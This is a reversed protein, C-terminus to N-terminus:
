DTRLPGLHSIAQVVGFNPPVSLRFHRRCELVTHFLMTQVLGKVHRGPKVPPVVFAIERGM